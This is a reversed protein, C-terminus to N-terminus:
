YVELKPDGNAPTSKPSFVPMNSFDKTPEDNLYWKIRM